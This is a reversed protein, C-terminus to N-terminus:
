QFCVFESVKHGGCQNNLLLIFFRGPTSALEEQSTECTGWTPSSGVGSEATLCIFPYTLYHFTLARLWETM